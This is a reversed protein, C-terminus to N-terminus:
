HRRARRSLPTSPWATSWTSSDRSSCRGPLRHRLELAEGIMAKGFETPLGVVAAFEAISFETVLPAGEGALPLSTDAYCDGITAADDLSEAPHLDAWWCAAQLLETEARDATRRRERAYALLGAPTEPQNDAEAATIAMPDSLCQAGVTSGGSCSPAACRHVLAQTLRVGIGAEAQGDPLQVVSRGAARGSVVPDLLVAVEDVLGAM